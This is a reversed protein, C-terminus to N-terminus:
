RALRRFLEANKHGTRKMATQFRQKRETESLPEVILRRGEVVVKLPTDPTIDMLQMLTRDVVLASSNGVRQLKKIM